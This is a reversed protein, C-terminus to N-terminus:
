KPANFQVEEFQNLNIDYLVRWYGGGGGCVIVPSLRLDGHVRIADKLNRKDFANIYIYKTGKSIIGIYQIIYDNLHKVKNNLRFMNIELNQYEKNNPTWFTDVKEQLKSGSCDKLLKKGKSEDLLITSDPVKGTSTDEAVYINDNSIHKSTRCTVTLQILAIFLFFLISKMINLHGGANSTKDTISNVM